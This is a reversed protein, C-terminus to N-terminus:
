NRLRRDLGRRAADRAIAGRRPKTCSDIADAKAHL